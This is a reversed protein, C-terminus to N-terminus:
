LGTVLTAARLYPEEGYQGEGVVAAEDRCAHVLKIVHEDDSAMALSVVQAWSKVPVSLSKDFSALGTALSGTALSGAALYAATFNQALVSQVAVQPGTHELWPRLTRFARLATVMHLVTFNPSAVYLRIALSALEAVRVDLSLAPALNGALGKYIPSLSADIMRMSIMSSDSHWGPAESVLRDAWNSFGLLASGPPPAAPEPLPQWRWAWYTLAAALEAAHGAELAHATRILGHFAAAAVGPLLEPLAQRLATDAGEHAVLENLTALLAPYAHPQGRLVRWDSVPVGTITKKVAGAGLPALSGGMHKAYTDYFGQLRQGSAGMSQLAHLAMPMHNTLQGAYEPPLKLNATLLEHLPTTSGIPNQLSTHMTLSQEVRM